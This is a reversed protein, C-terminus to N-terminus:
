SRELQRLLRFAEAHNTHPGANDSLIAALLYQAIFEGHGAAFRLAPIAFEIYGGRYANIGQELAAEPSVFTVGPQKEQTQAPAANPVALLVAFAGAIAGRWAWVRRSRLELSLQLREAPMPPGYNAERGRLRGCRNRVQRERVFVRSRSRRRGDFDSKGLTSITM